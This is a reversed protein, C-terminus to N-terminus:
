ERKHQQNRPKHPRREVPAGKPSDDSLTYQTADVQKRAPLWRRFWAGMLIPQLTKWADAEPVSETSPHQQSSAPAYRYRVYSDTIQTIPQAGEPLSRAWRQAQETPTQTEQPAFGLRGAWRQLREFLLLPLEPSFATPGSGIGSKRVLWFGGLLLVPLAVLWGWWPISSEAPTDVQQFDDLNPNQQDPGLDSMPTPVSMEQEDPVTPEENEIGTPRV